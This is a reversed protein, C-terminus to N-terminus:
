NKQARLFKERLRDLSGSLVAERSFNEVLLDWKDLYDVYKFDFEKLVGQLPNDYNPKQLANFVRFEEFDTLIIIPAKGNTSYAYRKAQFVPDKDTLPVHPAKAEVFFKLKADVRFAYDPKKTSSNDKQSYERHVDWLKKPINTQNLNWGLAEFLPDIFRNRAETEQFDKSKYVKENKAFDEVKQSIIDKPNM